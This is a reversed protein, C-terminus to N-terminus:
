ATGPTLVRARAHCCWCLPRWAEHALPDPTQSIFYWKAYRRCRSCGRGGSICHQSRRSPCRRPSLSIFYWGRAGATAEAALMASHPHPPCTDPSEGMHASHYKIECVGPLLRGHPSRAIGPGSAHAAQGRLSHSFIHHGAAIFRGSPSHLFSPRHWFFCRGSGQAEGTMHMHEQETAAEWRTTRRHTTLTSRSPTPIRM